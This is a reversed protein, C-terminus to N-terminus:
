EGGGGGRAGGVEQQQGPKRKSKRAQARPVDREREAATAQRQAEKARQEAEQLKGRLLLVEGGAAVARKQWEPM